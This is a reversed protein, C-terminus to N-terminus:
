LGGDNNALAGAFPNSVVVISTYVESGLVKKRGEGGFIWGCDFYLGRGLAKKRREGGFVWGCVSGFRLSFGM